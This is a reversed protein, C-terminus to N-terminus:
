EEVMTSIVVSIVKRYIGEIFKKTDTREEKTLESEFIFIVDFFGDQINLKIGIMKNLVQGPRYLICVM